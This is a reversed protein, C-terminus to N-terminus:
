QAAAATRRANLISDTVQKLETTMRAECSAAYEENAQEILVASRKEVELKLAAEDLQSENCSALGFCIVVASLLLNIKKM